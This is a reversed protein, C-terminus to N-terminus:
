TRKPPCSGTRETQNRGRPGTLPTWAPSLNLRVRRADDWTVARDAFAVAISALALGACIDILYHWRLFMTAIIIQSTCFGVIPWSYRFPRFERRYRFALLTFMSPVATHLSPFIDKQAGADAVTAKVLGWFTGGTLEHSFTGAFYHYPGFGPVVIYLLHAACFTFFIATAFRALIAMNRGFFMFPLVHVALLFFYGFYFFAFWETIAPTVFRDWALAPECHFALQDIAFLIGDVARTTSAPLIIRLEFYSSFVTSFLTLRYLLANAFSGRRLVAGRTLSLGIVLVLLHELVVRMALAGDPGTGFLVGMFLLGFYAVIVWDHPALDQVLARLWSADVSERESGNTM